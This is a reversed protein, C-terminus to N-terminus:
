NNILNTISMKCNVDPEPAAFAMETDESDSSDSQMPSGRYIPSSLNMSQLSPLINNFPQNRSFDVEQKVVDLLAPLSSESNRSLLPPPIFKPRQQASSSTSPTTSSTTSSIQTSLQSRQHVYNHLDPASALKNTDKLFPRKPKPRTQVVKRAIPSVLTPSSLVCPASGQSVLKPPVFENGPSCMRRRNRANPSSDPALKPLNTPPPTPALPPQRRNNIEMMGANKSQESSISALTYKQLDGPASTMREFPPPVKKQTTPYEQHFEWASGGKDSAPPPPIQFTTNRPQAKTLNIVPFSTTPLTTTTKQPKTGESQFNDPSFITLTLKHNQRVKWNFLMSNDGM